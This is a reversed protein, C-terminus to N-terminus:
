EVPIKIEFTSGEKSTSVLKITGHHKEVIGLSLSLGLGAGEADEAGFNKGMGVVGKTTFFPEFIRDRLDEDVGNGTDTINVTLIKDELGTKIWIEGGGPMAHKSNILLNLLVQEIETQSGNIKIEGVNSLKQIIKIKSNLFDKEVLKVTNKIAKHIDFVIHEEPRARTFDQLRSVISCARESAMLAIELAETMEKPDKKELALSVHGIVAGLINNFEHAIGSSLTGLSAMKASHLLERTKKDVEKGLNQNLKHLETERERIKKIMSNFSSILENIEKFNSKKIEQDYIGDSFCKSATCLKKIPKLFANVAFFFILISILLILIMTGVSSKLFSSYVSQMFKVGSYSIIKLNTGPIEELLIFHDSTRFFGSKGKIMEPNELVYRFKAKSFDLIEYNILDVEFRNPAIILTPISSARIYFFSMDVSFSALYKKKEISFPINICISERNMKPRFFIVDDNPYFRINAKCQNVGGEPYMILNEKDMSSISLNKIYGLKSLEDEGKSKLRMSPTKLDHAKNYTTSVAYTKLTSLRSKMNMSVTNKNLALISYAHSISSHYMSKNAIYIISVSTTVILAGITILIRNRLSM